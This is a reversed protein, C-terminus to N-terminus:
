RERVEDNSKLVGLRWPIQGYPKGAFDKDLVGQYLLMLDNPAIELKEDFSTRILEIHSISDAWSNGEPFKVNNKGAFPKELTAALPFWQGDLSDAIFAKYYRGPGGKAEIVALYKDIGKIKYTHSAEFIDDQLALKPESWGEPFRNLPTETRWMSGDPTTFFLHAKEEDCITWFDLGATDAIQSVRPPILKVGLLKLPSWSEPKSIDETTSFAAGYGHENGSIEKWDPDSAQCILYWKKHPTFFFVQPACFYGPHMTLIHRKAKHTENWDTFSIYEIQHSRKEGRITAFIHYKGDYFVVSPDKVSIITDGIRQEPALLPESSHWAFRGSTLWDPETAMLAGACSIVAITHITFASVLAPSIRRWTESLGGELTVSKEHSKCM